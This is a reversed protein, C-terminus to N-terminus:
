QKVGNLNYKVVYVDYKGGLYSHGGVGKSSIGGYLIEGSPSITVANGAKGYGDNNNSGYLRVWDLSPDSTGNYNFKFLSWDYQGEGTQGYMAAGNGVLYIAGNSHDIIMDRADDAAGVEM